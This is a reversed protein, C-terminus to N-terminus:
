GTITQVLTYNAALGNPACTTGEVLKKAALNYYYSVNEGGINAQGLVCYEIVNSTLNYTTKTKYIFVKMTNTTKSKVILPSTNIATKKDESSNARTGIQTATSLVDQKLGSKHAEKQSNLYIPVAIAAIIGMIVIVVLLEVLSFGEENHLRNKLM